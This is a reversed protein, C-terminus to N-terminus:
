DVRPFLAATLRDLTAPRIVASSEYHHWCQKSVGVRGAAQAMTLGAGERRWRLRQGDTARRSACRRCGHTQRRCLRLGMVRRERGCDCRCWYYAHGSPGNEARRLVTWHGVRRPPKAAKRGAKLRCRGCTVPNGERERQRLRAPVGFARNGCDCRLQWVIEGGARGRGRPSVATLAGFREGRYDRQAPM